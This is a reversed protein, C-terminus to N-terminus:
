KGYQKGLETVLRAVWESGAESTLQVAQSLAFTFGELDAKMDQGNHYSSGCNWTNDVIKGSHEGSQCEMFGLENLYLPEGDTCTWDSSQHSPCAPCPFNKRLKIWKVM